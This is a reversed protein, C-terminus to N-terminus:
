RRPDGDEAGAPRDAVGGGTAQGDGAQDVLDCGLRM